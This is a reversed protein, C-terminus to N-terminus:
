IYGFGRPDTPRDERFGSRPDFRTWVSETDKLVVEIFERTEDNEGPLQQQGQQQQPNGQGIADLLPKPDAGFLMAIVAIVLLLLGGGGVLGAKPM